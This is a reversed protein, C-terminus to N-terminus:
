WMCMCIGDREQQTVRSIQLSSSPYRRSCNSLSHSMCHLKGCCVRPLCLTPRWCVCFVSEPITPFVSTPANNAIEMRTISSEVQFTCSHTNALAPPVRERRALHRRWICYSLLFSKERERRDVVANPQLFNPNSSNRQERVLINISPRESSGGLPNEFKELWDFDTEWYGWEPFRPFGSAVLWIRSSSM